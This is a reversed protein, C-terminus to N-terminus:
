DGGNGGGDGGSDGGDDNHGSDYYSGDGAYYSGDGAEGKGRRSPRRGLSAIVIVLVVAGLGLFVIATGSM